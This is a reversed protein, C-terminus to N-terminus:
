CDLKNVIPLWNSWPAFSDFQSGAEFSSHM